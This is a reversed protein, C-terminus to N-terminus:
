ESSEEFSDITLMHGWPDILVVAESWPTYTVPPDGDLADKVWLSFNVKPLGLRSHTAAPILHGDVDCQEAQVFHLRFPTQEDVYRLIAMRSSGVGGTNVLRFLKWKKVYLNVAQDVNGVLLSAEIWPTTMAIGNFVRSQGLM